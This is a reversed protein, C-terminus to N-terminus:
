WLLRAACNQMYVADLIAVRSISQHCAHSPIRQNQKELHSMRRQSAQDRSGRVHSVACMQIESEKGGEIQGKPVMLGFYCSIEATQPFAHRGTVTGPM